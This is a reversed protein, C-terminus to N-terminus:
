AVTGMPKCEVNVVMRDALSDAKDAMWATENDPILEGKANTIEKM